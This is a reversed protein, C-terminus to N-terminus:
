PVELLTSIHLFLPNRMVQFMSLVRLLNLLLIFLNHRTPILLLFLKILHLMPINRLHSPQFKLLHHM